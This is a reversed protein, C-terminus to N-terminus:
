AHHRGPLVLHLVSATPTEIPVFVHRRPRSFHRRHSLKSSAVCSDRGLRRAVKRVSLGERRMCMIDKRESITPHEYQGM